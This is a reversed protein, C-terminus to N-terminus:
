EDGHFLLGATTNGLGEFIVSLFMALPPYVGPPM